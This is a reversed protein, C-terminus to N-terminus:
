GRGVPRGPGLHQRFFAITERWAREAAARDYRMASTDNHFAHDVGHHNIARVNKGARRLASIWPLATANVRADREALHILLPAEVRGAEAPPLGSGYFVVGADLANGTAVALRNVMAGGWCFGVIGVRRRGGAASALWRIM